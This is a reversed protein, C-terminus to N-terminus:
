LKEGKKTRQDRISILIRLKEKRNNTLKKFNHCSFGCTALVNCSLIAGPMVADLHIGWFQYM